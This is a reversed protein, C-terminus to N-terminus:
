SNNGIALVSLLKTPDSGLDIMNAPGKAAQTGSHMTLGVDTQALTPADNIGDGTMAVLKGASQEAKVIHIKKKGRKKNFKKLFL